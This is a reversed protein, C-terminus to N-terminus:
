GDVLLQKAALYDRKGNGLKPLELVQRIHKPLMIKPINSSMLQTKLHAESLPGSYVLGLQEGKKSDPLSVAMIEIDEVKFPDQWYKEVQSLSILEGAIKAFRSYRDVITLFGDKDLRGKDGTKYWTYDDDLILVDKTKEPLNLYGEMVQTGGVLVLGEEGTPLDELTLPDVVRFVCGPLPLGVSGIKYSKQVHWDNTSIVNPLNCSAVPAVETAGYGEYIELNFKEKFEKYISLSLKEAGAVVMRLSDLMEPHISGNRVYLGLLSSTSCFITVKHKCILKATAMANTPDPYCIFTIGRLLPMLNTITLGFAHFLPLSNMMIDSPQTGIVTAVQNINSLLNAHTLKVGKPAGESGSSFLIAATSNVEVQKFFFLHLWSAPLIKALLLTRVIVPKPPPLDDEVYLVQTSSLLSQTNLGRSELKTLFQHSTIITHISAQDIAAKISSEGMTFNLNIIVKGLTLVSLNAIVGAPTTPLLIGVHQQGKLFRKIKRSFILVVSLLQLNTIEKGNDEIIAISSPEKKMQWLWQSQLSGMDKIHYKWSKISLQAVKQKVMDATSTIEMAKGYIVSVPRDNPNRIKSKKAHSFKSGWLGHIYFPVIVAQANVASREFGSQFTGMQGNKTLRGEPFLAVVEGQNLSQNIEALAKSSAGKAIPIVKFKKLIWNLYWTEYVSREMVFRIPRPCAIQLIAWDIFSVHNGLLLVGGSSPLNELDHVSLHYFRSSILYLLYRLLSQPLRCIAYIAMFFAILFLGYLLVESRMGLASFTVTCILFSLMFCTQIFNNASLIKGMEQRPANFQILANLPVILMGGFFGYVLFLLVILFSNALMPLFLLCITIGISAIPILGTEVFGKSVKGAYLAGLLIGIGGVAMSGQAFLISVDGLHDKLFAGYSALLVQNISWFISLGIICHFIISPHITKNLYGKVYQGKIYKIPDYQSNADVAQTHILRFTMITELISFAILLFGAPAFAKLLAAKDTTHQLGAAHMYSSFLYTFVFTAGLIAIIILTQVIANAQSLFEKGFSEKIYGYKAPSNLASQVALLLTLLFAGWFYGQYYCWTVLVLLPIAVAATYQLVKKKPFKDAIFGSPTFLFIYPLLILANIIASFITYTSSTSTQYLTDQILIKHGLDIFTNFFVLMLYPYFGKIKALKM